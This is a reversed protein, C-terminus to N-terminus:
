PSAGVYPFFLYHEAEVEFVEFSAASTATGAMSTVSIPGTTAGAPVGARIQRDSDITFDSALAGNFKVETVDDFGTGNITVITGVPGNSPTFGGITLAVPVVVTFDSGSVTINAGDSVSIPGSSAGVPVTARIQAESDVTFQVVPTGNFRVATVGGFGSGTITVETGVPGEMPSFSAISPTPIVTFHTASSGAGNSNSVGIPGSTAGAPVIARIQTNSDINFSSAAAGNFAVATAQAFDSGFITVETGIIGSGPTFSTISPANAGSLNLYNHFYYSRNSALVVLGTTSNVNQKTSTPDNISSDTESVVFPEGGTDADFHINDIATKKYYIEGDGVVKVRAFIYLDRNDEDILLIPRTPDANSNYVVHPTWNSALTCTGSTCVLLVILAAGRSTKVVAFLKGSPDAHLSKLNIHDDGSVSYATVGQWDAPSDGSGDAHAAFSMRKGGSQDSWMVGIHGDYAIISSIDDSNVDGAGAVPIPYPMGWNADDGNLTHNVIVQGSVVYTVWLTETTDKALVLTESESQNVEVPFGSDPSYTDSVVNYSYRYLRGRNGPGASAGGNDFIHSVVYLKNGDWLADAKSSPRNDIQVGTDMWSQRALDLRYIHYANGSTSWLSGWWYGDNWWLKSEPKSATIEGQGVNNPYEFDRFGHLIPTSAQAALGAGALLSAVIALGLLFYIHLHIQRGLLHSLTKM